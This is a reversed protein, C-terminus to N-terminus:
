ERAVFELLAAACSKAEEIFGMHGSNELWVVEAEPHEAVMKEAVEPVIYGDKRGLIFLIPKGLNHLMESQPKREIMGNLLAIIGADETLYVTQQLDEIATRFRTRNDAAFGAEPASHALLEKKGSRILSIERQRNKRKEESDAYPTSHLLVVADTRNPYREAFALAVYGGMSHGVVTISEVGLKDLAAALTDALYDMTHIEGKVESIGHGPIDLTIVRVDKYLLPVFEEWVLMNELYGHLLVVVKEGVESDCIHLASDGAMIFKEVM